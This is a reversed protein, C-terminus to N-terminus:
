SKERQGMRDIHAFEPPSGTCKVAIRYLFKGEQQVQIGGIVAVSGGTKKVYNDVAKYLRDIHRPIAKAKRKAVMNEGTKVIELRPM